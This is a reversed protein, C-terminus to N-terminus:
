DTKKIDRWNPAARTTVVDAMEVFYQKLRNPRYGNRRLWNGGTNLDKKNPRWGCQQLIATVNMWEGPPAQGVVTLRNRIINVELTEEIPDTTKFVQQEDQLQAREEPSLYWGYERNAIRDDVSGIKDRISMYISKMQAWFQEPVLGTDRFSQVQLVWFRRNQSDQLFELENVTGYFVTRRSYSNATRAFPPRIVDNRETIFGKLAEIDSKKFTADIEGLETIWYSLAKLLTDKNKTEIIVADKNWINHYQRPILREIFTTKGVGQEGSWTLVGECGFNTHYLAAVASLAWKRMMTKKLPNPAALEVSNYFAELRDQGDWTHSDIWDRVPHYCNRNAIIVIHDFIDSVSLNHKRGLSQIFALKANDATDASFYEGPIDIDVMKTMENHRVTIKYFKLLEETNALTPKGDGNSRVDPFVLTLARRAALVQQQLIDLEEPSMDQKIELM